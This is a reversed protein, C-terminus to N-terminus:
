YGHIYRRTECEYGKVYGNSAPQYVYADDPLARKSQKKAM